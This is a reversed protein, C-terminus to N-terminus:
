IEIIEARSLASKILEDAPIPEELKKIRALNSHTEPHKALLYSCCDAYPKISIEYTGIKKAIEITDTKDMGILPTIVPYKAAEYIVNLNDLTQSAVQGMSDGTVFFDANEQKLIEGAAKFMMRRYSIMRFQAPIFSIIIRQLNLIPVIHMKPIELQKQLDIIKKKVSYSEQTYNHFHVPIVEAGSKRVLHAAVPSDIGGSLLAIARM